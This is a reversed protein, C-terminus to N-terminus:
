TEIKITKLGLYEGTVMKEIIFVEIRREGIRYVEVDQLSKILFEQLELFSEATGEGVLSTNTNCFLFAALLEKLKIGIRICFQNILAPKVTQHSEQFIAISKLIILIEGNMGNRSLKM